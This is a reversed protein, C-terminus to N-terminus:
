GMRLPLEIYADRCFITNHAIRTETVCAWHGKVNAHPVYDGGDSAIDVRIRNGKKLTFGIPPTCIDILIEEGPKYDKNIHTLSTITETLNYAEKNAEFSVRIFFATDECDTKVSMHWRIEGFYDVDEAVAESFFSIVGEETGAPKAKAIRGYEFYGLPEYPDYTYHYEGAEAPSIALKNDAGFYLRQIARDEPKSQYDECTWFDGGISYYNVKGCKAHKYPTKNRISNFWEVAFNPDIDGNELPYDNNKVKTAHGWPGVVFASKKKTRAPLRDWMSFMGEIYYDYWGETFLVPIELVDSVNVRPDRQWFTNNTDNMLCNTYPPFEKGIIRKINDKYPREYAREMNQVPFTNRIMKLWWNLNCWKYCCGNRYNRFFMQDTQISLAAGKIDAPNLNLYCLHVTSLYSGGTVYIEGDYCDLQRILELTRLGDEREVYPVCDGESDGRGRCHQYVVAYGNKVYVDNDYNEALDPEGHKPEEYPSRIYVIPCKEKGKPMILRTYLRIGDQMAWMDEILRTTDSESIMPYSM